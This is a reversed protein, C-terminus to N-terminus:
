SVPRAQVQEPVQEEVFPGASTVFTPEHIKSILRLPIKPKDLIGRSKKDMIYGRQGEKKKVKVYKM